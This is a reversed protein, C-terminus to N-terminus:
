GKFINLIKNIVGHFRWYQLMLRPYAAEYINKNEFFPIKDYKRYERLCTRCKKSLFPLYKTKDDVKGTNRLYFYQDALAQIYRRLLLNMLIKYKEHKLFYARQEEYATLEDLRSINWQKRTTGNTNSFYFYIMDDLVAIKIENLILLHMISLDEWFRGAPFRLSKFCNKHFLKACPSMNVTEHLFSEYVKISPMVCCKFTLKEFKEEEVVRKCKAVAIQADNKKVVYLLSELYQPHIWDDADVFCIWNVENKRIVLDIANNRAVSPGSNKQHIVSIRSDNQAYEDCIKGCNDPSGDDVLWLEYDTFTQALISDVCRRLYAEVKYVPVIVSIEPM